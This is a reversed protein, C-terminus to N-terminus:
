AIPRRARVPLTVGDSLSALIQLQVARRALQDRRPTARGDVHAPDSVNFPIPVHGAAVGDAIATDDYEFMVTRLGDGLTFTKGDFLEIGAPAVLTVAQVVRDRATSRVRTSRLVAAFKSSTNASRM